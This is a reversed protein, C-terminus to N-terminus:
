LGQYDGSGNNDDEGKKDQKMKFNNINYTISLSVIRSNIKMNNLSSFNIGNIEAKWKATNFLDSVRLGLTLQGDLLTKKLGLDTMFMGFMKGQPVAQPSSYYGNLQLAFGSYMWQSSFRAYWVSKAVSQDVNNGEFKTGYYSFSGNLNWWKFMQSMVNFELGYSKQKAYNSFSQTLVDTAPDYSVHVNINDNVQRYFLTTIFSLKNLFLSHTFEYADIYEPNLDPNGVRVNYDDIKRVFPNLQWLNPRNIRRSYSVRLENGKNLVASLNFTPFVSFYNKDHHLSTEKQYSNSAANELRLGIQYKYKIGLNFASTFISYAAHINEKYNFSNSFRTNNYFVGLSDLDFQNYDSNRERYIGKYGAEFKTDESIPNVYDSKLSFLNNNEYGSTNEDPSIIVSNSTRFTKDNDTSRTFYFDATLEKGKTDFTRKYNLNYDLDFGDRNGSNKNLYSYLPNGLSDKSVSSTYDGEDRKGKNTLVSTSIVDYKSFYYDIGFKLNHSQGQMNNHIDNHLYTSTPLESTREYYGNRGRNMFRNDYGGYVNVANERYNFSLSSGYNDRTGASIQALGNFNSEEKKKLVINIIGATGDADYRASPNTVIEIKDIMDAPLQELMKADSIGSPRGDIQININQNGRLSVNGDIDVNVSPTNKLVDIASGGAPPMTKEVNVIMKDATFEIAGKQATVTIASLNLSTTSLYVTGIDLKEKKETIHIFDSYTDKYNICTIKLRYTGVPVGELIFSGNSSTINGGLVKKTSDKLLMVTAYEIPESTTTDKIIGTITATGKLSIRDSTQAFNASFLLILLIFLNKVSNKKM